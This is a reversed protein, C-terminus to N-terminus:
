ADDSLQTIGDPPKGANHVLSQTCLLHDTGDAALNARYTGCSYEDSFQVKVTPDYTASLGAESLTLLVKFEYENTVYCESWSVAFLIYHIFYETSYTSLSIYHFTDVSQCPNQPFNLQQIIPSIAKNVSITFCLCSETDFTTSTQKATNKNRKTLRQKNYKNEVVM